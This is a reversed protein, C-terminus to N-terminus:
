TTAGIQRLLTTTDFLGWHEAIKGNVIRYERYVRVDIPKHSANIGRFSGLHTGRMRLRVIVRDDEAVISEVESAQDPFASQLIRVTNELGVQSPPEYAHDM